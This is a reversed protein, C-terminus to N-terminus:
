RSLFVAYPAIYQAVDVVADESWDLSTIWFAWSSRGGTVPSMGDPIRVAEDSRQQRYVTFPM